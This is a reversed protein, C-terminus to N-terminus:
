IGQLLITRTKEVKKKIAFSNRNVDNLIEDRVVRVLQCSACMESVPGSRGQYMCLAVKTHGVYIVQKDVRRVSGCRVNATTPKQEMKAKRKWLKRQQWFVMLLLMLQRLM